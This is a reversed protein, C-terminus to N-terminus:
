LTDFVCMAANACMAQWFACMAAYAVDRRLCYPTGEPLNGRRQLCSRAIVYLANCPLGCPAIAACRKQRYGFM